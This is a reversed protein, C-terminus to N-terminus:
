PPGDGIIKLPTRSPFGYGSCPSEVRSQDRMGGRCIRSSSNTVVVVTSARSRRSLSSEM